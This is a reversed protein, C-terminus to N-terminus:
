TEELRARVSRSHADFGELAALEHITDAYDALWARTTRVVSARTLFDYVGLGSSFRATRTTPLIHSPGAAYDSVAAPTDEGLLICGAHSIDSLLRLPERVHLELHEPALRNSIAVSESLSQTLVITGQETIARWAAEQRDLRKVQREIEAQVAAVLPAASTILVALSDADQGGHEAQALLDAALLRPSASEDAIIAVDSPGYLGDVGVHGYLLRKALLVYIGGPGAIKDVRPVTETGFAFAALAQAGSMKYIRHVGVLHAATLVAPHVRCDMSAPTAMVIDPVGAVQAPIASMLVSSPYAATGGPIYLGVRDIPSYKEGLLAGDPRLLFSDRPRSHEHFRRINEAAREVARHFPPGTARVAEEVEAPTVLLSERTVAPCDFRNTYELLAEDGRARVDAIIARVAAEKEELHQLFTSSILGLIEEVTQQKTSLIRM